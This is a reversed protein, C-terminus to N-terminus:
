SRRKRKKSLDAKEQINTNVKKVQRNEKVCSENKMKFNNLKVALKLKEVMSVGSVAAKEEFSVM